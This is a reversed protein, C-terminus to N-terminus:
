IRRLAAAAKLNKIQSNLRVIEKKVAAASADCNAKDMDVQKGNGYEESIGHSKADSILESILEDQRKSLKPVVKNKM